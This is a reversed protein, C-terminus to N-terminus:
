DEVMKQMQLLDDVSEKESILRANGNLILVERPRSQSNYTSAMAYGYAGACLVALIDGEKPSPIKRLVNKGETFVDGSECLNGAIMMPKTKGEVQNALVIEHHAGYFAPRVLTNFGANVGVVPINKQEVTNVEVLLIGADGVLFRGPELKIEAKLGSKKLKSCIGNAYERMPFKEQKPTYPIGPGGGFDIFELPYGLIKEGKKAMALTKDVTQLFTKVDKGLWGSGIHQHLGSVTFGLEKATQFAELVKSEPIGFKVYKGATIVHDHIHLEEGKGPNWRISIKSHRSGLKKLRKLQSFSDVNVLVGLSKLETLDSNSVSTGTFLIEDESFGAKLAIKVENVSTADIKARQSKLLKLVEVHPNAKMAYHISFPRDAFAQFANQMEQFNEVIRKGNYVYLPTGFEKALEVASLGAIHLQNKEVELHGKSEFWQM